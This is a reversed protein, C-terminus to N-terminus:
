LRKEDNFIESKLKNREKWTVVELFKFGTLGGKKFIQHLTWGGGEAFFPTPDRQTTAFLVQAFADIYIFIFAKNKIYTYIYIYLYIHM